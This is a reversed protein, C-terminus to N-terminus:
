SIQMNKCASVVWVLLLSLAQLSLSHKPFVFSGLFLHLSRLSIECAAPTDLETSGFCKSYSGWQRYLRRATGMCLGPKRAFLCPSSFWAKSFWQPPLDRRGAGSEVMPLSWCSDKTECRVCLCRQTAGTLMCLHVTSASSDWMCTRLKGPAASGLM